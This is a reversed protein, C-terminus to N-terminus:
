WGSETRPTRGNISVCTIHVVNPIGDADAEIRLVWQSATLGYGRVVETVCALHVIAREPSETYARLTRTRNSEVPHRDTLRTLRDHISDLGFGPNKPSGFALIAEDDLLRMAAPIDGDVAAAVLDQAVVRAREGATTVLAGTLLASGGLAALVVAAVLRDRRADRLGIWALGAAIALAALSVPYPNEFLHRTLWGVDPPEPM